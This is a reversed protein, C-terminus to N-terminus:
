DRWIQEHYAEAAAGLQALEGDTIAPNARRLMQLFWARDQPGGQPIGIVGDRNDDATLLLEGDEDLFAIWPFYNIYGETESLTRYRDNLLAGPTMPDDFNAKLVVFHKSVIAQQEKLFQELQRCGLCSKGGLAVLIPRRTSRAEALYSQLTAEPDPIPRDSTIKELFIVPAFIRNSLRSGTYVVLRGDAAREGSRVALYGLLYIAIVTGCLVGARIWQSWALCRTLM